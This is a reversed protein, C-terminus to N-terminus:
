VKSRELRYAVSARPSPAQARQATQKCFTALWELRARLELAPENFETALRIQRKGREICRHASELDIREPRPLSEDDLDVSVCKV